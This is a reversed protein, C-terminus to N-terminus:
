EEDGIEDFEDDHEEDANDTDFGLSEPEQMEAILLREKRTPPDAYSVDSDFQQPQISVEIFDDGAPLQLTTGGQSLWHLTALLRDRWEPNFWSKCQRRRASHMKRHNDWPTVGDSTFIVHSSVLYGFLPAFVPRAQVGFHWYRRSGDQNTSYGVVSRYSQRGEPNVFHIDFKPQEGKKFFYCNAHNALPYIGLASAGIWREWSDRLLRSLFYRGKKPDLPGRGEVLECVSIANSEVLIISTGLSAQIDHASAFTVLDINDMFGAFQMRHEPEIPGPTSRTLTHLWLRQPISVIRLLNSLYSEGQQRVSRAASFQERWWSTVASPDFNANKPVAERELVELLQAYGKAWSKEFSIANVTTLQVNIDAHPLDDVHLPIVFDRLTTDSRAVNKAIQLENRPGDKVNSTRSLVYLFRVTRTRIASEADKWFNEGGLLKTLDCWVGYGDKALQLALWRTFDNDEPNAHSVFLMDRNM